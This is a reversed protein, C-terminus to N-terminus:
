IEDENHFKTIEKIVDEHVFIPINRKVALVIADSPRSDIWVEDQKNPTSIILKGHFTEDRLEDICVRLLRIDAGDLINYILDHTMPRETTKSHVAMNMAHAEFIGIYIPFSRGGYKEGLIIIQGGMANENIQIEKLEMEVFSM